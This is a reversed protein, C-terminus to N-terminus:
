IEMDMQLMSIMKAYRSSEVNKIKAKLLEALAAGTLNDVMSCKEEIM